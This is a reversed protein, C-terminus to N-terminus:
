PSEPGLLILVAKALKASPFAIFIAIYFDWLFEGFVGFLLVVVFDLAIRPLSKAYYSSMLVCPKFEDLMEGLLLLFATISKIALPRYSCYDIPLSPPTLSGM